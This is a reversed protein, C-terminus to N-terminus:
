EGNLLKCLDKANQIKWEELLYEQRAGVKTMSGEWYAVVDDCQPHVDPFTESTRPLKKRVVVCMPREDVYYKQGPSEAKRGYLYWLGVMTLLALLTWTLSM